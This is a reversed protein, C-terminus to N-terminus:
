ILQHTQTSPTPEQGNGRTLTSNIHSGGGWSVQADHGVTKGGQLGQDM